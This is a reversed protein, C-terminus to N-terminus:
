ILKCKPLRLLRQQGSSSASFGNSGLACILSPNSESPFCFKKSLTVVGSLTDM